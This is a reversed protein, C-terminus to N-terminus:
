ITKLSKINIRQLAATRIDAHRGLIQANPIGIGIPISAVQAAVEIGSTGATIRAAAQVLACGAGIDLQQVHTPVAWWRRGSRPALAGGGRRRSVHPAVRDGGQPDLGLLVQVIQVLAHDRNDLGLRNRVLKLEL